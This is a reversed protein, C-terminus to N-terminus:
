SNAPALQFLLNGEQRPGVMRMWLFEGCAVLRAERAGLSLAHNRAARSMERPDRLSDFCTEHPRPHIRIEELTAEFASEDALSPHTHCDHMQEIAYLASPDIRDAFAVYLLRSGPLYHAPIMRFSELLALPVMNAAQLFHRANQLPFVPCAWQTGLAATIQPETVGGLQRLWEGVRGRGAERQAQLAKKLTAEDVLGRQLLVLGLPVRHPRRRRPTLGPGLRRIAEL